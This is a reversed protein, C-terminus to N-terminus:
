LTKEHEVALTRQPIDNLAGTPAACMGRYDPHGELRRRRIVADYEDPHIQM